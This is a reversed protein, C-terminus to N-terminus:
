PLRRAFSPARLPDQRAGHPSPVRSWWGRLGRSAGCRLREQALKSLAYPPPPWADDRSPNTPPRTSMASRSWAACPQGLRAARGACTRASSTGRSSARQHGRSRWTRCAPVPTSWPPRLERLAARVTDRASTWASGGGAEGLAPPVIRGARSDSARVPAGALPQPFGARRHGVLGPPCPDHRIRHAYQAAYYRKFARGARIPAVVVRTRYWSRKRCGGAFPVAAGDLGQTGHEPLVPPRPPDEGGSHAPPAAALGDLIRHTLDREHHRQRRGTTVENAGMDVAPGGGAPITVHLLRARQPRRRLAACTATSERQGFLPFGIRSHYPGYNNSARTIM